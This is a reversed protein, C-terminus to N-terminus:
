CFQRGRASRRTERSLAATESSAARIVSSRAIGVGAFGKPGLRPLERQQVGGLRTRDTGLVGGAGLTAAGLGVGAPLPRRGVEPFAPLDTGTDVEDGAGRREGLDRAGADDLVDPDGHVRLDIAIRDQAHVPIAFPRRGDLNREAVEESAAVAQTRPDARQRDAHVGGPAEVAVPRHREALRGADRDLALVGLPDLTEEILDRVRQAVNRVPGAVEVGLPPAGERLACVRLVRQEVPDAPRSM